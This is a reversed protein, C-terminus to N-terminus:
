SSLWTQTVDYCQCLPMFLANHVRSSHFIPTSETKFPIIAADAMIQVDAQHWFSGAQTLSSAALAQDILSNVTASNYDGYDTSNPGYSRGDFLPEIITRGNNGYWDPVWGPESIDWVGNKAATPNEVYHAYYDGGSTAIEGVVTVGCAAFDKQVEQFIAPHHGSTRYVDKLTLKSVGAAALLSKCKAPDGQNGPTPYPNSEQYGIQGPPIIQNLPTELSAGGYIKGMAVKDIAYELAQRVKVNKLAGNNNPSQLNFVEYPNTDPSPFVGLRPDWTPSELGALNAAPVTTDWNLDVSGTTQEEQVATDTLGEKVVIKDVYQHHIPDSSQTWAPNKTLDIETNPTYATVAYPGDSLLHSHLGSSDPLYSEYEVPAAATFFMALLNPFDGAPQTLNFVITSSDPTSIGSIQNGDMFSKLSAVDTTKLATFANCYSSMGVITATYYGPAGVPSIPNCLRKFGLLFDQSTVARPPSSNWMVGSRLHLTYQKGGNTVTPMATAVDPVVTNATDINSSSGYGYLTRAFAREISYTATYYASATDLHDVDGTGALILTGGLQPSGTANVNASLWPPHFNSVSAPTSNSTTSGGGCAAVGMVALALVCVPKAARRGRLAENRGERSSSAHMTGIVGAGFVLLKM